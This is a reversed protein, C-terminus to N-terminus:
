TIVCAGTKIFFDGWFLYVLFCGACKEIVDKLSFNLFFNKKSFGGIEWDPVGLFIVSLDWSFNLGGNKYDGM